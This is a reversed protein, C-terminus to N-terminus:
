LRLLEQAGPVLLSPAGLQPVARGEVQIKM